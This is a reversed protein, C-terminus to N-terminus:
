DCSDMEGRWGRGIVFLSVAFCNSLVTIIGGRFGLVAEEMSSIRANQGPRM